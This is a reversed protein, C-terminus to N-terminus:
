LTISQFFTIKRFISTSSLMWNAMYIYDMCVCQKLNLGHTRTCVWIFNGSGKLLSDVDILLILWEFSTTIKYPHTCPNMSQVQLLTNTHTIYIAFQISDDVDINHFSNIAIIIVPSMIIVIYSQTPMLPMLQCLTQSLLSRDSHHKSSQSLIIWKWNSSWLIPFCSEKNSDWNYQLKM